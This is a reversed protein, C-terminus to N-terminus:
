GDEVKTPNLYSLGFTSRSKPDAWPDPYARFNPPTDSKPTRVFLARADPNM